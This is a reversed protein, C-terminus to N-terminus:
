RRTGATPIVATLFEDNARHNMKGIYEAENTVERIRCGAHISQGVIGRLLTTGVPILNLQGILSSNIANLQSGGDISV